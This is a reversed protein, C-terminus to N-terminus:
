TLYIHSINFILPSKPPPLSPDWGLTPLLSPLAPIGPHPLPLTLAPSTVQRPEAFSPSTDRPPALALNLCPQYDQTPQSGLGPDAVAFSPSTDRPPALALNLCPQYGQTPSATPREKELGPIGTGFSIFM